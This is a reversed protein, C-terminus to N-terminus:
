LYVVEKKKCEILEEYKKIVEEKLEKNGAAAESLVEEKLIDMLHPVVTKTFSDVNLSGMKHAIIELEPLLEKHIELILEKKREGQMRKEKSDKINIELISKIM